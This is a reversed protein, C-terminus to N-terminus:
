FREHEGKTKGSVYIFSSSDDRARESLMNININYIEIKFWKPFMLHVFM